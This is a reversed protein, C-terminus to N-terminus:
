NRVELKVSVASAQAACTLTVTTGSQTMDTILGLVFPDSYARIRSNNGISADTFTLTTANAALTATLVTPIDEKSNLASADAKNSLASNLSTVDDTLEKNTKAYPQFSGDDDTALRVMPKFVLNDADYDEYIVPSVSGITGSANNKWQFKSGNGYDFYTYGSGDASGLRYGQIAYSSASGGSPCGSMIVQKGILPYDATGAYIKMSANGGTAQGDATVTGDANVTFTVNRYSYVNGAWTGSTNLAKMVDLDFPLRNHAGNEARVAAENALQTELDDAAEYNTNLVLADHQAIPTKARYLIGDNIFKQGIAYEQSADTLDTEVPAITENLAHKEKILEAYNVITKM